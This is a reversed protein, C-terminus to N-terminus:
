KTDLIRVGAEPHHEVEFYMAEQRLEAGIQRVLAEAEALRDDDTVVWVKLCEDEFHKGLENVWHGVVPGEVTGGGFTMWFRALIAKKQSQPVKTGDNFRVPVLTTFKM